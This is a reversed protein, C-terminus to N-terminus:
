NILFVTGNINKRLPTPHATTPLRHQFDPNGSKEQYVIGFGFFIYSIFVFHVLQAYFIGFRWLINWIAM